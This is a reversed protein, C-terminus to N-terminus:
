VFSRNCSFKLVLKQQELSGRLLVCHAAALVGHRAPAATLSASAVVDQGWATGLARRQQQWHNLVWSSPSWYINISIGGRFIQIEASVNPWRVAILEVPSNWASPFVNQKVDLIHKIAFKRLPGPYLQKIYMKGERNMTKCARIDYEWLFRESWLFFGFGNLRNECPLRGDGVNLVPCGQQGRCWKQLFYSKLCNGASSKCNRDPSKAHCLSIHSFQPLEWGGLPSISSYGVPFFFFFFLYFAHM